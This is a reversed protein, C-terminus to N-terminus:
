YLTGHLKSVPYHARKSLLKFICTCEETPSTVKTTIVTPSKVYSLLGTIEKFNNGGPVANGEIPGHGVMHKTHMAGDADENETGVRHPIVRVYLVPRNHFFRDVWPPPSPFRLSAM